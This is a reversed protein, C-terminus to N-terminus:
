KQVGQEVGASGGAAIKVWKQGRKKFGRNEIKTPKFGCFHGFITLFHDFFTTWFHTWFRGLIRIELFANKEIKKPTRLLAKVSDDKKTM